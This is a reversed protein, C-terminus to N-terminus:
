TVATPIKRLPPPSKTKISMHYIVEGGFPVTPLTYDTQLVAANQHSPIQLLVDHDNPSWFPNRLELFNRSLRAQLYFNGAASLIM